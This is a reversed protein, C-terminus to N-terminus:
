RMIYVHSGGRFLGVVRGGKWRGEWEMGFRGDVGGQVEGLLYLFPM